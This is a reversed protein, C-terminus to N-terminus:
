FSRYLHVAEDQNRSREKGFCRHSMSAKEETSRSDPTQSMQTIQWSASIDSEYIVRKIFVDKHTGLTRVIFESAYYLQLM